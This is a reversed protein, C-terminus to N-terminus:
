TLTISETSRRSLHTMPERVGRKSPYYPTIEAVIEATFSQKIFLLITDAAENITKTGTNVLNNMMEIFFEPVVKRGVFKADFLGAMQEYICKGYHFRGVKLIDTRTKEDSDAKNYLM